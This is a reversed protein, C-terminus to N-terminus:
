IICLEINQDVCAEQEQGETIFVHIADSWM